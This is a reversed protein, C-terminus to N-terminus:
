KRNVGINIGFGQKLAHYRNHEIDSSFLRHNDDSNNTQDEDEHHLIFGRPIAGHRSEYLKRARRRWARMTVNEKKANQNGKSAKGTKEREKPDQYRKIGAKSIKRRTEKSLKKGTLAKSINRKAEETREYVGKPM